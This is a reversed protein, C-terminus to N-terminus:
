TPYLIYGANLIENSQRDASLLGSHQILLHQILKRVEKYTGHRLKCWWICCSICVSGPSFMCVPMSNSNLFNDFTCVSGSLNTLAFKGTLLNLFRSTLIKGYSDDRTQKCGILPLKWKISVNLVPSVRTIVRLNIEAFLRAYNSKFRIQCYWDM